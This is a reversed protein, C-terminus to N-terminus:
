WKREGLDLKSLGLLGSPAGNINTRAIYLVPGGVSFISSIFINGVGTYGGGADGTMLLSPVSTGSSQLGGGEMWFWFADAIHLEVVM